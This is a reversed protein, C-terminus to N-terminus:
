KSKKALLAQVKAARDAASPGSAQARPSYTPEPAEHDDLGEDENFAPSEEDEYDSASLDPGTTTPPTITNEPDFEVRYLYAGKRGKSPKGVGTFTAMVMTGADVQALASDLKTKGWVGVNGTPTQFVHLKCFGSQSMESKCQKSGLYYGEIQTPNPKNNKDRGGLAITKDADLDSVTKYAM